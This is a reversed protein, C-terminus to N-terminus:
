LRVYKRLKKEVAVSSERANVEDDFKTQWSPGFLQMRAAANLPDTRYEPLLNETECGM